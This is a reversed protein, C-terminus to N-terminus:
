DSEEDVLDHYEGKWDCDECWADNMDKYDALKQPMIYGVLTTGISQSGCKPCVDHQISYIDDKANLDGIGSDRPLSVLRNQIVSFDYTAGDIGDPHIYFTISDFVEDYQARLKFDIVGKKLNKDFFENLTNVKPTIM